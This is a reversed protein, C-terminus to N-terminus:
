DTRDPREESSTLSLSRSLVACIEPASAALASCMSRGYEMGVESLQIFVARRDGAHGYTRTIIGESELQDMAYTLGGSSLELAEALQTPRSPGWSMLTSIAVQQRRPISQVGDDLRASYAALAEGLRGNLAIATDKSGRQTTGDAGSGLLDLIEALQPASKIHHEELARELASMRRRGNPTLSALTTRRDQDGFSRRVLGLRELRAVVAAVSPRGLGTVAMLEYPRQASHVVLHSLVLVDHNSSTGVVQEVLKSLSDSYRSLLMSAAALQQEGLTSSRHTTAM